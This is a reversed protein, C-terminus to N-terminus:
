DALIAAYGAAELELAAIQGDAIARYKARIEETYVVAAHAVSALVAPGGEVTTTGRETPTCVSAYTGGSYATWDLRVGLATITRSERIESKTVAAHMAALAPAMSARIRTVAADRAASTAYTAATTTTTKTKTTM